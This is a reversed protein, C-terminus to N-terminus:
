WIKALYSCYLCQRKLREAVLGFNAYLNKICKMNMLEVSDDHLCLERRFYTPAGDHLFWMNERVNLPVDELLEPLNNQLFHLYELGTLRDPLIFPGILRGDVIGAWVNIAFRQQFDTHNAHPNEVEWVNTNGFNNIGNRTFTSEGTVLVRAPHDQLQLAQVRQVHFPYSQNERLTKWVKNQSVNVQRAIDRTSTSPDDEVIDLIEEEIQLTHLAQRTRKPFREAYRRAAEAAVQHCEGYMLLMDVLENNSYVHAM